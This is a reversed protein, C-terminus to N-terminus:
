TQSGWYYTSTWGFSPAVLGNQRGHSGLEDATSVWGAFCPLQKVIAQLHQRAPSMRDLGLQQVECGMGSNGTIPRLSLLTFTVAGGDELPCEETHRETDPLPCLGWMSPKSAVQYLPSSLSLRRGQNKSEGHVTGQGRRAWSQTGETGWKERRRQGIFGWSSAEKSRWGQGKRSLSM